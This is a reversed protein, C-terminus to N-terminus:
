TPSAAPLPYAALAQADLDLQQHALALMEAEGDGTLPALDRLEDLYSGLTPLRGHEARYGGLMLSRTYRDLDAPDPHEAELRARHRAIAAAPALGDEHQGHWGYPPQAEPLRRVREAAQEADVGDPLAVVLVRSRGPGALLAAGGGLADALAHEVGSRSDYDYVPTTM